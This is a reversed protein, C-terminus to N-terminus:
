WSTPYAQWQGCLGDDQLDLLSLLNTLPLNRLCCPCRVTQLHAAISWCINCYGPEPYLLCYSLKLLHQWGGYTFLLHYLEIICNQMMLTVGWVVCPGLPVVSTLDLILAVICPTDPLNQCYPGMPSVLVQSRAVEGSYFNRKCLQGCCWPLMFLAHLFSPTPM